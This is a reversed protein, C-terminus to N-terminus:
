RLETFWGFVAIAVLMAGSVRALATGHATTWATLRRQAPLAVLPLALLPWGFGIGFALFYGIESALSTASGAGFIFAGVVLPGTCPLTMPALLAGYVFATALPSRLVPAQTVTLRAFPNRGLLMSVGLAAVALYVAPLLWGLLTDFSRGALYLAGGIALMTALVGALVAAGLAARTWRGGGGAAALFAILGPYLPLVCVNTLIAGNGLLFAAVLDSM